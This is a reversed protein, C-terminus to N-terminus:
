EREAQTVHPKSAELSKSDELNVKTVSSPHCTRSKVKTDPM